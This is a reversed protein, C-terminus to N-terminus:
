DIISYTNDQESGNRELTIQIQNSSQLAQYLKIAKQPNNVPENNVQKIIDGVRFGLKEYISNPQINVFRYGKIEGNKKNPLMRAQKLIEDLNGTYKSFDSRKISFENPQVKLIDADNSKQKYHANKYGISLKMDEPIVAYEKQGNNLNKFTIKRREISIIKIMNYAEENVRFSTVHANSRGKSLITAVSKRPNRHVITGKLDIPLSTKVAVNTQPSSKDVKKGPHSLSEPILGKSNFINRERISQYNSIQPSSPQSSPKTPPPDQPLMHPRLSLVVLDAGMYGILIILIYPYTKQIFSLKKLGQDPSKKLGKKNM